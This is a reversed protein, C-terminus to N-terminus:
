DAKARRALLHGANRIMLSAVAGIAASTAYGPLFGPVFDSHLWYDAALASLDRSGVNVAEIALMTICGVGLGVLTALLAMRVEGGLGSPLTPRFFGAAASSGVFGSWWLAVRQLATGDPFMWSMEQYGPQALAIALVAAVVAIRWGFMAGVIIASYTGLGLPMALPPKLATLLLLLLITAVAIGAWAALRRAALWTTTKLGHAILVLALGYAARWAQRFLPIGVIILGAALTATAMDAANEADPPLNESILLQAPKLLSGIMPLALLTSGTMWLLVQGPVLMIAFAVKRVVPRQGRYWIFGSLATWLAFWSLIFCAIFLVNGASFPHMLAYLLYGWALRLSHAAEVAFLWGGYLLLLIGGAGLLKAIAPGVDGSGGQGGISYDRGTVDGYRRWWAADEAAKREAVRRDHERVQASDHGHQYELRGREM